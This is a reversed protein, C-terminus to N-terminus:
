ASFLSFAMMCFGVTGVLCAVLFIGMLINGYSNSFSKVKDEDFWKTESLMGLCILFGIAIASWKFLVIGTEYM